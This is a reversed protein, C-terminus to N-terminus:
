LPRSPSPAMLAWYYWREAEKFYLNAEKMAENPGPIEQLKKNGQTHMVNAIVIGTYLRDHEFSADTSLSNFSVNKPKTLAGNEFSVWTVVYDDGDKQFRVGGIGPESCWMGDFPEPPKIKKLTKRLSNLEQPDPIKYM